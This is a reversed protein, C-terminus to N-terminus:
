TKKKYIKNIAIEEVEKPTLDSTDIEFADIAKKLPSIKRNFDNDDRENIKFLYKNFKSTFKKEWILIIWNNSLTIFFDFFPTIILIPEIDPM